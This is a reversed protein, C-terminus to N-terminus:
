SVVTFPSPLGKGTVNITNPSTNGSASFSFVSSVAVVANEVPFFNRFEPKACVDISSGTGYAWSISIMTM